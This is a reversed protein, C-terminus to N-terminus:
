AHTLDKTTDPPAPATILDPAGVSRSDGALTLWAAHILGRARCTDAFAAGADLARAIEAPELPGVHTTVRRAGLDSDDRLDCAPIRRIAPHGPLDVANAIMTAAADAEAATRALVTVSDAIGLSQSRGRWGSTAIGRVPSDAPIVARADSDAIAVTLRQGPALYLAVDGGNNVHASALDCAAMAHCIADAVSGAVAAMPTIFAPAFPATAAHMARAVPGAPRPAPQPQRLIALEDVLAQLMGDFRRQAAEMAQARGPGEAGIVLDIPGHNLHLRRDTLWAACAGMM